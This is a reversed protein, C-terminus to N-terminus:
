SPATQTPSVAVKGWAGNGSVIGDGIQRVYIFENITAGPVLSTITDKISQERGPYLIDSEAASTKLTARTTADNTQVTRATSVLLFFSSDSDWVWGNSQTSDLYTRFTSETFAECTQLAM